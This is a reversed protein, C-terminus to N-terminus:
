GTEKPTGNMGYGERYSSAQIGYLEAYPGGRAVLEDHTGYEAVRAGDLVVILDAMRVTSFRHSVLLTIRGTSANADSRAAEAFSEFLAHEIEADLASTPEDLVLLLPTEQMFGRALAIKQWQGHSLDTGQDWNAGLQSDLGRELKEVVDDAGARAVATKVASLDAIRPLDGVGVSQRVPYEFKFFDQFAGTLRDRWDAPRVRGLDTGDVTIKGASPRYFGCLLKVLTSKGAGNEGVVAVVKGAPLDLSVDDLILRDTGPYRFSIKELRIGKGLNEPAPLDAAALAAEAYDELWALRRSVDVWIARFFQTQSVTQGIYQSLRSGATLVLTVDGAASVGGRATYAVAAVFAAGLVAQAASQWAASTWRARALPVYRRRWDDRYRDRLWRQVGAVRIEKGAAASTGLTFLHRARREHRAGAEEAAKEAGSRWHSVLVGPVAVFGLLGLMPHVSMLLALTFGLRVVAGLTSFLQQYLMSLASAHDRLVSLRDLHDPREHHEITVVSSQLHAVHAELVVAARDAFRRNARDSVVDLLWGATALVGVFTVAQAIRGGDGTMVGHVLEALGVAILADPAAAAVTTAFAVLILGPSAQYGMRLSRFLASAASPLRDTAPPMPSRPFSDPHRCTLCGGTAAM